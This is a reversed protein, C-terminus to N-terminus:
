RCGQWAPADFAAGVAHAHREPPSLTTADRGWPSVHERVWAAAGAADPATGDAGVQRWLDPFRNFLSGGVLVKTTSGAATRHLAGVLDRIYRAHSGITISVAVVAVQHQLALSVVSELPMNGGLCLTSWGSFELYDAVMRLGLDHLEPGLCTAIIRPPGAPVPTVTSACLELVRQTIATAVHENAVDLQGREWLQGIDYMAPQLVEHYLDGLPIEAALARQVVHHAAFRNGAMLAALYSAAITDLQQHFATM